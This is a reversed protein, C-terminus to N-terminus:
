VNGKGEFVSLYVEELRRVSDEIDFKEGVIERGRQGMLGLGDGSGAVQLVAEAMAGPDRPEVLVGSSADQVMEEIPGNRFAIVPLGTAMAELVAVPLGESLSTFVFIDSVALLERVDARQGLFRISGELGAGKAEEKLAGELEGGGAVLLVASPEKKLVDKMMPVLYRQGKQEHLRGVNILVPYSGRLGLEDPLEADPAKMGMNGFGDLSIGSYLVTVKHENILRHSTYVEKVANSVAIFQKTMYRGMLDEILYHFRYRGWKLKSPVATAHLTTVVPVRAVTASFRGYFGDLLLHTHLIDIKLRRILRTLRILTRLAHRKGGHQLHVPEIGAELFKPELDRNGSFYCLHNEFRGADMLPLYRVLLMGVGGVHLDSVCHLVRVKRGASATM